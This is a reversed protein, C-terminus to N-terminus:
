LRDLGPVSYLPMPRATKCRIFSDMTFHPEAPTAINRDFPPTDKIFTTNLIPASGFEQAYHWEDINSAATSRLLGTVKSPKYRYEAWREQYGFVDDDTASGDCYIEQTLVSQEGLHAYEPWYFDYRTSRSWLRDLGQQYTLDARVSLLGIIYCHETFSKVFGANQIGVTGYGTLHGQANTAGETNPVPTVVVPASSGGLYEPRQLRADPSTVGFHSKIIETYRTGGRADKELFRQTAFSERLENITSGVASSLDARINPYGSNNPDEEIRPASSANTAKNSVYTVTGSGDTEYVAQSASGDFTQNYMGIGTVPADSGLSISVATGKQPWPLCSTFYDHKKRRDLLVYDTSTDPGDDKDVVVSDDINQDRFWENFILNYCRFPLTNITKQSIDGIPVGFYDHLSHTVWGTTVPAAVQPITYAISDGPDDQAGMFKHFNSWVLRMPVAFYFVDLYANDMVPTIPTNMRAFISASLNFTDGPLAEDLLFPILKGGDFTTKYSHTRDFVSRPVSAQPAESFNHSMVSPM